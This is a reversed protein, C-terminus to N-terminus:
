KSTNKLPTRILNKLAMDFDQICEVETPPLINTLDEKITKVFETWNTPRFNRMPEWATGTAYIDFQAIVPFHHTKVPRAAGDMRCKIITNMLGEACFVNKVRTHNGTNNVRLTPRLRPIFPPLAM